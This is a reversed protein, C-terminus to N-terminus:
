ATNRRAERPFLGPRHENADKASNLEKRNRSSTGMGESDSQAIRLFWLSGANKAVRGGMKLTLSLSGAM